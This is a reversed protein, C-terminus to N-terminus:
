HMRRIFNRSMMVTNRRMGSTLHMAQDRVMKWTHGAQRSFQRGRRYSMRMWRHRNRNNQFLMAAGVAAGVMSGAIVGSIVKNM